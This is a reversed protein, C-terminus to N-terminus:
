SLGMVAFGPEEGFGKGTRRQAREQRGVWATAYSRGRETVALIHCPLPDLSIQSMVLLGRGILTEAAAPLELVLVPEFCDALLQVQELTLLSTALSM